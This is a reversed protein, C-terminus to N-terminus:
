LYGQKCMCLTWAHVKDEVISLQFGSSVKKKNLLTKRKKPLPLQSDQEDVISSYNSRKDSAARGFHASGAASQDVLSAEFKGESNQVNEELGLSHHTTSDHLSSTTPVSFKEKLANSNSVDNTSAAAHGGDELHDTMSDLPQDGGKDSGSEEEQLQEPRSSRLKSGHKPKTRKKKTDEGNGSLHKQYEEAVEGSKDEKAEVQETQKRKAPKSKAGLKVKTNRRDGSEVNGADNQEFDISNAVSLADSVHKGYAIDEDDIRENAQQWSDDEVLLPDLLSPNPNEEDLVVKEKAEENRWRELSKSESSHKTKTRKRTKDDAMFDGRLPESLLEIQDTREREAEDVPETVVQRTKRKSKKKVGEKKFDDGRLDVVMMAKSALTLYPVDDEVMHEAPKRKSKPRGESEKRKNGEVKGMGMDEDGYGDSAVMFTQRVNGTPVPDHFVEEESTENVNSRKPNKAKLSQKTKTKAKKKSKDEKGKADTQNTAVSADSLVNPDEHHEKHTQAVATRNSKSGKKPKATQKQSDDVALLVDSLSPELSDKIIVVEEEDTPETHEVVHLAVKSKCSHKIKTRKKNNNEVGPMLGARPYDKGVGSEENSEEIQKRKSLRAKSSQKGKPRKRSDNQAGPMPEEDMGVGSRREGQIAEANSTRSNTSFKMKAGKERSCDETRLSSETNEVDLRECGEESQKNLKRKSPKSKHKVKSAKTHVVDGEMKRSDSNDKTIILNALVAQTLIIRPEEIYSEVDTEDTAPQQSALVFRDKDRDRDCGLNDVETHSEFFSTSIGSFRPKTGTTDRGTQNGIERSSLRNRRRILSLRKEPTSCSKRKSRPSGNIGLCDYLVAQSPSNTAKLIEEREIWASDSMEVEKAKKHGKPVNRKNKKREHKSLTLSLPLTRSQVGDDTLCDIDSSFSDSLVSNNQLPIEPSPCERRRFVSAPGDGSKLRDKGEGEGRHSNTFKRPPDHHSKPKDPRKKADIHKSKSHSKSGPRSGSKSTAGSKYKLARPVITKRKKRKQPKHEKGDNHSVSSTIEVEVPHASKTEVVFNAGHPPIYEAEEDLPTFGAMGTSQLVHVDRDKSKTTQSVHGKGGPVNTPRPGLDRNSVHETGKVQHSEDESSQLIDLHALPVHYPEDKSSLVYDRKAQKVPQPEDKASRYTNKKAQKVQPAADGSYQVPEWEAQEAQQPEDEASDSTDEEAQKVQLARDKASHRTGREVQKVQPPGDESSQVTDWKAQKVLNQKDKASCRNDLKVGKVRPEGDKSSQITDFKARKAPPLEDGCSQVVDQKKKKRSGYGTGVCDRQVDPAVDGSCQESLQIMVPLTKETVKVVPKQRDVKLVLVKNNLIANGEAQTTVTVKRDTLFINTASEKDSLWSPENGSIHVSTCQFLDENKNSQLTERMGILQTQDTHCSVVAASETPIQTYITQHEQRGDDRIATTTVAEGEVPSSSFTTTTDPLAVQEPSESDIEAM